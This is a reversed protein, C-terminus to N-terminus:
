QRVEAAFAEPDRVQVLNTLNLTMVPQRKQNRMDFAITVIGMDPHSASRRLATITASGSLTDGKMLPRKWKLDTFGLGGMSAIGSLFADVLMRLSLAGTQWGSSALGGLLSDRAAKEDLHFPFPDFETAFEIIDAKSVTRPGLATTEGVSLDEFHRRDKTIPNTM